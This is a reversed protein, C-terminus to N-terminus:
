GGAFKKVAEETTDFIEFLKDMQTQQLLEMVEPKIGALKVDGEKERSKKLLSIISGLGSSNVYNVGNLNFVFHIKDGAIAERVIRSLDFSSLSDIDGDLDLIIVGEKEVKNIDM